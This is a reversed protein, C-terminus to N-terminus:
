PSSAGSERPMVDEQTAVAHTVRVVEHYAPKVRTDM